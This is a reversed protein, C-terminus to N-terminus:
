SFIGPVTTTKLLLSKQSGPLFQTRFGNFGNQALLLCFYIRKLFGDFYIHIAQYLNHRVVSKIFNTFQPLERYPPQTFSIRQNGWNDKTGPSVKDM